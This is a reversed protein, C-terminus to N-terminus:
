GLPTLVGKSLITPDSGSSVGRCTCSQQNPSSLPVHAGKHICGLNMRAPRCDLGVAANLIIKLCPTPPKRASYPPVMFPFPSPGDIKPTTTSFAWSITYIRSFELFKGVFEGHFVWLLPFYRNVVGFGLPIHMFFLSRGTARETQLNTKLFWQQVFILQPTSRMASVLSTMPM